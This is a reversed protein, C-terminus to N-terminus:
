GEGRALAPLLMTPVKLSRHHLDHHALAIVVPMWPRAIRGAVQVIVSEDAVVKM